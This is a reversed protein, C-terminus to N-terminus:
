QGIWLKRTFWRYIYIMPFIKLEEFVYDFMKTWKKIDEQKSYWIDSLNGWWICGLIM